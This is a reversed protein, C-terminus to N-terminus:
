RQGLGVAGGVQGLARRGEPDGDLVLAGHGGAGVRHGVCEGIAQREARGRRRGGADAGVLPDDGPHDVRGVAEGGAGRGGELELDVDVVVPGPGVPVVRLDAGVRGVEHLGAPDEGRGGVDVGGRLVVRHVAVVLVVAGDAIGGVGVVLADGFGAHAGVGLVVLVDGVEVEVDHVVQGEGLHGVGGGEDPVLLVRDDVRDGDLVLAVDGGPGVRHGVRHRGAEGRHLRDGAAAHEGVAAL